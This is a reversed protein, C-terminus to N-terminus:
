RDNRTESRACGNSSSRGRRGLLRGCSRMAWALPRMVTVLRTIVRCRGPVADPTIKRVKSSSVPTDFITTQCRTYSVNRLATIAPRSNRTVAHKAASGTPWRWVGLPRAINKLETAEGGDFAAAANRGLSNHATDSVLIQGSEALAELRAAINIGDGFIDGEETAVEGTHIGIRLRIEGLNSFSQIAIACNAAHSASQFEAIWGDGMSKILRGNHSALAPMLTESRFTKLAALTAERNQDMLASYGVIDAALVAALRTQM